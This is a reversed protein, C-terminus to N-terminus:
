LKLYIKMKYKNHIHIYANAVINSHGSFPTENNLLQRHTPLKSTRHFMNGCTHCRFVSLTVRWRCSLIYSLNEMIIFEVM